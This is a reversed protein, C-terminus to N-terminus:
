HAVATYNEARTVSNREPLLWVRMEKRVDDVSCELMEEWYVSIIPKAQSGCQMAWPLYHLFFRAKEHPPLRLPGFASAILGVPLGTQRWEFVKIALEEVVSIDLDLITHYFDHCQRYRLLMYADEESDVFRVPPRTSWSIGNRKMQNYYAHGFSGKPLKALAEWQEPTFSIQPREKLIRRGTPDSIMQERMKGFFGNSTADGLAAIHSGDTPDGFGMLAAGAAIFTKQLTTSPKHTEYLPGAMSRASDAKADPSTFAAMAKAAVFAAGVLAAPTAVHRAAASVLGVLSM